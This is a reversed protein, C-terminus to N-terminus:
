TVQEEGMESFVKEPIMGDRLFNLINKFRTGDRDLYYFGDNHQHSDLKGTVLSVLLNDEDKMITSLTTQFFVGGVNLKIVENTENPISTSAKYKRNENTDIKTIDNSLSLCAKNVLQIAEDIVAPSKLSNKISRVSDDGCLTNDPHNDNKACAGSAANIHDVLSGLGFFEAEPLMECKSQQSIYGPLNGHRMYNLIHRFQTGDRDFFYCGDANKKFNGNGSLLQTFLSNPFKKLTEISTDFVHGGVNLKVIECDCQINAAREEIVKVQDVVSMVTNHDTQLLSCTEELKAKTRELVDRTSQSNVELIDSLRSKHLSIPSTASDVLSRLAERADGPSLSPGVDDILDSCHEKPERGGIEDKGPNDGM